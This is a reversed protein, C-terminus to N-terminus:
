RADAKPFHSEAIPLWQASIPMAISIKSRDEPNVLSSSLVGIVTQSTVDVIPAGSMGPLIESSNLMLELRAQDGSMVSNATGTALMGHPEGNLVTYGYTRFARGSSVIGTSLRLQSVGVPAPTALSILALDREPMMSEITGTVVDGTIVFRVEVAGNNTPHASNHVVHYTTIIKDQGVVFGTGMVAHTVADQIAVTSSLLTFDLRSETSLGKLELLAGKIAILPSANTDELLRAKRKAIIQSALINAGIGVAFSLLLGLVTSDLNM